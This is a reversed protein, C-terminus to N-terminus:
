KKVTMEGEIYLRTLPTKANSRVTITKRFHGPFKGRGDYTVTVQGQKGPEVPEKTYNAVTCGCSTMAQNIVLPLTGVNTFTFQATMKKGEPFTGFNIITKDFKMEAVKDEARLPMLALLLTMLLILRKMMESMEKTEISAFTFLALLFFLSFQRNERPIDYNQM